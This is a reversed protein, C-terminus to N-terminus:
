NVLESLFHTLLIVESPARNVSFFEPLLIEEEEVFFIVEVQDSNQNVKDLVFGCIIAVLSNGAEVQALKGAIEGEASL